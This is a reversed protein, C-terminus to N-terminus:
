IHILSLGHVSATKNSVHTTRTFGTESTCRMISDVTENQRWPADVTYGHVRVANALARMGAAEITKTKCGPPSLEFLLQTRTRRHEAPWEDLSSLLRMLRERVYAGADEVEYPTHSIFTRRGSDIKTYPVAPCPALGASRGLNWIEYVRANSDLDDPGAPSPSRVYDLLGVGICYVWDPYSSAQLNYNTGVGFTIKASKFQLGIWQDDSWSTRRAMVDAIMGDFVPQFHWNKAEEPCREAILGLLLRIACGEMSHLQGRGTHRASMVVSKADRRRTKMETTVGRQTM